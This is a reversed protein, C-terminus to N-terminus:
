RKKKKNKFELPRRKVQINKELGTHHQQAERDVQVQRRRAGEAELKERYAAITEQSVVCGHLAWIKGGNEYVIAPGESRHFRGNTDCWKTYEPEEFPGLVREEVDDFPNLPDLAMNIDYFSRPAGPLDISRRSARNHGSNNGFRLGSCRS